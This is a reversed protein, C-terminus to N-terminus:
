AGEERIRSRGCGQACTSLLDGRQTAATGKPLQVNIENHRWKGDGEWATVHLAPVSKWPLSCGGPVELRCALPRSPENWACPYSRLESQSSPRVNLTLEMIVEEEDGKGRLATGRINGRAVSRIFSRSHELQPRSVDRAATVRRCTLPLLAM